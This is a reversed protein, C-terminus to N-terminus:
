MVGKAYLTSVAAHLQAVFLPVPNGLQRGDRRNHLTVTCREGAPSFQSVLLLCNAARTCARCSPPVSSAPCVVVRVAYDSPSVPSLPSSNRPFNSCQLVLGIM